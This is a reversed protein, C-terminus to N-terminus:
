AVSHAMQQLSWTLAMLCQRDLQLAVAALRFLVVFLLDLKNGKQVDAKSGGLGEAIGGGINGGIETSAEITKDAIYGMANGTTKFAENTFEGVGKGITRSTNAIKNEGFEEAIAGIVEGTGKIKPSIQCYIIIFIYHQITKILNVSTVFSFIIIM